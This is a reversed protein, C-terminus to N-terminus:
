SRRGMEEALAICLDGNDTNIMDIDWQFIERLMSEDAGMYNVMVKIGHDHCTDLLEDCLADPGVEIITAGLDAKAQLAEAASSANVKLAMSPDLTHFLRMLQDSGSWLFCDTAMDTEHLLDILHQPHAFKVDIFVCAKGKIWELFTDLRPVGEAAFQPDFWSGADLQEIEGSTLSLLHGSGDTTRDVTGDHMLYFAGDRSTWVDIEVYDVGWDLCRQAAAFTNEPAYQNAGKHCAIQLRRPPM